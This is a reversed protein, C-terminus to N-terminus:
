LGLLQMANQLMDGPSFSFVAENDRLNWHNKQDIKYHLWLPSKGYSSKAL